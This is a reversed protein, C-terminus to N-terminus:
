RANKYSWRFLDCIIQVIYSVKGENHVIYPMPVGLTMRTESNAAEPHLDAQGLRRIHSPYLIVFTWDMQCSGTSYIDPGTERPVGPRNCLRRVIYIYILALVRQM